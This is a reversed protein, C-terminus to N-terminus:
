YIFGSSFYITPFGPGRRIKFGEIELNDAREVLEVIDPHYGADSLAESGLGKKKL